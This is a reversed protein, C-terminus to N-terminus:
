RRTIPIVFPQLRGGAKLTQSGLKVTVAPTIAKGTYTYSANLGSVKAGSLDIKYRLANKKAYQVADPITHRM